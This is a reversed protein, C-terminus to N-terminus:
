FRLFKLYPAALGAYGALNLATDAAGAQPQPAMTPAPPPNVYPAPAKYTPLKSTPGQYTPLTPLAGFADGKRQEALAQASMEGGLARTNASFMSPRVGGNISINPITSPLDFSADQANALIDGRVANGARKGPADLAYKRQDLELNGVNVGANVKDLGFRNAATSTDLDLGYTKTAFDNEQGAADLGYRNQANNADIQARYLGIDTQNADNTLGAEAARGTARGQSIDTATQGANKLTTLWSPTSAGAALSSTTGPVLAGTAPVTSTSALAPLAAGAAGAGIAGASGLGATVPLGLATASSIGATTPIGAAAAGGAGAAASGAGMAGALPGIGAAGFGTLALGGIAAAIAAKKLKHHEEVIQGNQDIGDFKDNMGIGHSRVLQNLELQQDDSLPPQPNGNADPRKGTKALWEQYWPQERIFATAQMAQQPNGIGPPLTAAM